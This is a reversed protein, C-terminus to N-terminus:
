PIDFRLIRSGRCDVVWWSDGCCSIATPGELRWPAGDLTLFGQNEAYEDFASILGTYSDTVLTGRGGYCACAGKPRFLSKGDAGFAGIMRDFNGLQTFAQIRGNLVDIVMFSNLHRALIGPYKFEQVRDGARGEPLSMGRMTRMPRIEEAGRGIAKLLSGDYNVFLLRHNDNDSVVLKDDLALVDVPDCNSPLDIREEPRGELDFAFLAGAGPDSVWLQKEHIDAGLPRVFGDHRIERVLRGNMDVVVVRRNLGDVVYAMAQGDTALDTPFELGEAYQALVRVARSQGAAPPAFGAFLLLVALGTAARRVAGGARRDTRRLCTSSKM